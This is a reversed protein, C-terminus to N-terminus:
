AELYAQGIMPTCFLLMCFIMRLIVAIRMTTVAAMIDHIPALQTTQCYSPSGLLLESCIEEDWNLSAWVDFLLEDSADFPRKLRSREAVEELLEDDDNDDDDPLRHFQPPAGLPKETLM